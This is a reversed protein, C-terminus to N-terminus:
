SRGKELEQPRAFRSGSCLNGVQKARWSLCASSFGERLAPEYQRRLAAGVLTSRRKDGYRKLASPKTRSADAYQERAKWPFRPRALAMDFRCLTHAGFPTRTGHPPSFAAMMPAQSLNTV